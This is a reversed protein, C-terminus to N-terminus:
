RFYQNILAVSSGIIIGCLVDSMHHKNDMIRSLAVFWASLIVLFQIVPKLLSSKTKLRSELYLVIFVAVYFSASSHGSPFSVRSGDVVSDDENCTYETIYSYTYNRNACVSNMDIKCEDIFNPRLRGVTKKGVSTITSTFLVGSGYCVLKQYVSWFYRKIKYKGFYYSSSRDTNRREHYYEGVFVMLTPVLVEVANMVVTPVTSELSPYMISTDDCFFGRKFPKMIKDTYFDFVSLLFFVIVDAMVSKLVNVPHNDMILYM